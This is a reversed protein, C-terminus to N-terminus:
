RLAMLETRLNKGSKRLGLKDRINNRHFEITSYGRSLVRAIDKTSHGQIILQAVDQESPTLQEFVTLLHGSMDTTIQSLNTEVMQVYSTATPDDEVRTRLKTLAPLVMGKIQAVFHADYEDRSREVRRLLVKLAANSEELDRTRNLVRRETNELTDKLARELQKRREIEVLLSLDAEIVRAFEELGRRFKLARPNKRRDLVCITGFISQDPWRLPYGIYFSMGHELDDNDAWRPDACADEVVLEGNRIVSDCYLKENLTFTLGEKYPHTDSSNRLYVSHEPANTIMVLSAPVDALNAILDVISQWNRRTEAPIEPKLSSIDYDSLRM